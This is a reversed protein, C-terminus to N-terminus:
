VTGGQKTLYPVLTANDRVLIVSVEWDQDLLYKICTPSGEAGFCQYSAGKEKFVM